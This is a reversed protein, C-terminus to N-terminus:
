TSGFGESDIVLINILEGTMSKGILPKGWIWLGKTCSNITSGTEFGDARNLIVRNLLYSKGTRYLGAISIVAFPQSINEFLTLTEEM